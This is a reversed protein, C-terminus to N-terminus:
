RSWCAMWLWRLRRKHRRQPSLPLRLCVAQRVPLWHAASFGRLLLPPLPAPAHRASDEVTDFYLKEAIDKEEDRGQWRLYALMGVTWNADRDEQGSLSGM